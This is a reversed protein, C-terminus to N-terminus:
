ISQCMEPLATPIFQQVSLVILFVYHAMDALRPSVQIVRDQLGATIGLEQQEARLMLGPRKVVPM